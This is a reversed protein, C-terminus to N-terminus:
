QVFTFVSFIHYFLFFPTTEKKQIFHERCEVQKLPFHRCVILFLKFSSFVSLLASLLLM